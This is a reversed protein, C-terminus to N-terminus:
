KCMVSQLENLISNRLNFVNEEDNKTRYAKFHHIPKPMKRFNGVQSSPKACCM